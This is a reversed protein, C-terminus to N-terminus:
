NPEKEGKEQPRYKKPLYVVQMEMIRWFYQAIGSMTLLVQVIRTKAM